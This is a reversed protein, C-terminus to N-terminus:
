RRTEGREGRGAAVGGVTGRWVATAPQTPTTDAIATATDCASFNFKRLIPMLERALVGGHVAIVSSRGLNSCAM